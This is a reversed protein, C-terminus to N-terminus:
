CVQMSSDSKCKVPSWGVAVLQNSHCHLVELKEFEIRGATHILSWHKRDLDFSYLQLAPSNSANDPDQNEGFQIGMYLVAPIVLLNNNITSTVLIVNRCFLTYDQRVHLVPTM